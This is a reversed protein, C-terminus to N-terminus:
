VRYIIGDIRVKSCWFCHQIKKGPVLEALNLSRWQHGGLACFLGKLWNSEHKRHPWLKAVRIALNADPGEPFSSQTSTVM